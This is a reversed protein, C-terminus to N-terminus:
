YSAFKPSKILKQEGRFGAPMVQEFNISVSSCSQEPTKITLKSM